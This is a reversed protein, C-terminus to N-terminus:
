KEGVVMRGSKTLWREGLLTSAPATGANTVIEHAIGWSKPADTAVRTVERLHNMMWVASAPRTGSITMTATMQANARSNGVRVRM